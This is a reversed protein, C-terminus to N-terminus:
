VTKVFRSSANVKPQWVPSNEWFVRFSAASSRSRKCPCIQLFNDESKDKPRPRSSIHRRRRSLGDGRSYSRRSLADCNQKESQRLEITPITANMELMSTSKWASCVYSENKTSFFFYNAHGEVWVRQLNRRRCQAVGAAAFTATIYSYDIGFM